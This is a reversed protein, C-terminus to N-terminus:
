LKLFALLGFVSLGIKILKEQKKADDPSGEFVLHGRFENVKLTLKM